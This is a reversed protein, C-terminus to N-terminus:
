GVAVGPVLVGTGVGLKKDTSGSFAAASEDRADITDSWRAADVPSFALSPTGDPAGVESAGGRFTEPALHTNTTTDIRDDINRKARSLVTTASTCGFIMARKLLM